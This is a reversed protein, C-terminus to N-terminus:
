FTAMFVASMLGLVMVAFSGPMAAASESPHSHPPHTHNNSGPPHTHDAEAYEPHTHSTPGPTSPAPVGPRMSSTDAGHVDCTSSLCTGLQVLVLTSESNGEAGFDNDAGLGMVCDNVLIMGETKEGYTDVFSAGTSTVIDDSDLVKTKPATVISPFAAAFAAPTLEYAKTSADPRNLVNTAAGLDVKFIKVQSKARELVLLHKQAMDGYRRHRIVFVLMHSMAVHYSPRM